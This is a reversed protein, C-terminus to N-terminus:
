EAAAQEDALRKWIKPYGRGIRYEEGDKGVRDFLGQRWGGDGDERYSVGGGFDWSLLGEARAGDSADLVGVAVDAFTPREEKTFFVCASCEGCFFRLVKPSSAYYKLTGVAAEKANILSKLETMHTPFPKDHNSFSINKMETFTWNFVDLGGQLRCSDCGCLDALLKHTKPDINWPLEGEPIDSYDGRSLVFDVGKCKCRIPIRDEKKEEYGTLDAASPWERPLKKATKDDIDVDSRELEVGGPNLHRFWVSAGGDLTDGVFSHDLFKVVEHKDNELAGTFVGLPRTHDNPWAWFLPTSCTPCFLLHVNSSFSFSKLKSVDVNARPEPWRVDATYLAGSVHRCSTCHCISGPLPLKSKSITSKFTNAACLCRATLTVTDEIQSSM